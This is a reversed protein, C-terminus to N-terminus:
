HTFFPAVCSEGTFAVHGFDCGSVTPEKAGEPGFFFSNRLVPVEPARAQFLVLDGGGLAALTQVGTRLVTSSAVECDECALGLARIDHPQDISGFNPRWIVVPLKEWALFIMNSTTNLWHNDLTFSRKILGWTAFATEWLQWCAAVFPPFRDSRAAELHFPDFPSEQLSSISAFGSSQFCGPHCASLRRQM